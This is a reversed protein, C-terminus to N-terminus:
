TGYGALTSVDGTFKLVRLGHSGQFPGGGPHQITEVGMAQMDLLAASEMLQPTQYQKAIKARTIAEQDFAVQGKYGLANSKVYEDVNDRIKTRLPQNRKPHGSAVWSQGAYQAPGVYSEAGALGRPLLVRRNKFLHNVLSLFTLNSAQLGITLAGALLNKSANLKSARSAVTAATFLDGTFSASNQLAKRTAEVRSEYKKGAVGMAKLKAMSPAIQESHLLPELNTVHATPYNEDGIKSLYTHNTVFLNFSFPIHYPMDADDRATAQLMYGEVVIDDWYLYIRANQEVLKTGRLTNEYNYWFETRWNFDRTNMLLGTVNLIRPREGFFFIYPEGFTELIQSKEQRIDNIQQIIFNSYNYTTTMASRNNEPGAIGSLASTTGRNPKQDGGADVLGIQTGDAKVVKIISYTDEKIEIGRYPRRVGSQDRTGPVTMLQLNNAFADTQIEVFVSDGAM